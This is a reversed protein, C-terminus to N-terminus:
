GHYVFMYPPSKSSHKAMQVILGNRTETFLRHDARQPVTRRWERHALFRGVHWRVLQILHGRGACTTDADDYQGAASVDGVGIVFGSGHAAPKPGVTNFRHHHEIPKRGTIFVWGHQGVRLMCDYAQTFKARLPADSLDPNKAKGGATMEGAHCCQEVFFTGHRPTTRIEANQDIGNHGHDTRECVFATTSRQQACGFLCQLSFLDAEVPVYTGACRREKHDVTGIIFDHVYAVRQSEGIRVPSSARGAFEVHKCIANV